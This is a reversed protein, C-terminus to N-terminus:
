VEVHIDTFPVRVMLVRTVPRRRLRVRVIVATLAWSGAALAVALAAAGPYAVVLAGVVVALSMALSVLLTRALSYQTPLGASAVPPRNPRM